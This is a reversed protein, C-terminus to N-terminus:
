LQDGSGQAPRWFRSSSELVILQDGSSHAPRWFRSSSSQERCVSITHQTNGSVCAHLAVSVISLRSGTRRFLCTGASVKVMTRGHGMEVGQQRFRSERFWGSPKGRLRRGRPDNCARNEERHESVVVPCRGTLSRLKHSTQFFLLWCSFSPQHERARGPTGVRDSTRGGDDRRAGSVEQRRGRPVRPFAPAPGGPTGQARPSGRTRRQREDRSRAAPVSEGKPLPSNGAGGGEGARTRRSTSPHLRAADDPAPPEGSGAGWEGEGGRRSPFGDTGM